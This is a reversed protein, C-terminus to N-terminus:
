GKCHLLEVSVMKKKGFRFLAIFLFVDLILETKTRLKCSQVLRIQIQTGTGPDIFDKIRSARCNAEAVIEQCHSLDRCVLWSSFWVRTTGRYCTCSSTCFKICNM